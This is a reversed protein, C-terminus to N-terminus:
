LRANGQDWMGDVKYQISSRSLRAAVEFQSTLWSAFPVYHRPRVTEGSHMVSGTDGIWNKNDDASPYEDRLGLMHGFEHVAGRQMSAGKAVAVLDESDLQANGFSYNVCSAQFNGAPIKKVGLEFDDDAHWGDMYTKFEFQVGVDRFPAAPVTSTTTIRYKNNWVSGVASIFGTAFTSKEGATWALDDGDEFQFQVTMRVLLVSTTSSGLEPCLMLRYAEGGLLSLPTRVNTGSKAPAASNPILDAM